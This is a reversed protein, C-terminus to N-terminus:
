LKSKLISEILEEVKELNMQRSTYLKLPESDDFNNLIVELLKSKRESYVDDQYSTYLYSFIPIFLVTVSESSVFVSFDWENIIALYLLLGIAFLASLCIIKLRVAVDAREEDDLEKIKKLIAQYSGPSKDTIQDM